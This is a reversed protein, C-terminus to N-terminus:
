GIVEGPVYLLMPQPVPISGSHSLVVHAQKGPSGNAPDYEAQPSARQPSVLQSDAVSRVWQTRTTM